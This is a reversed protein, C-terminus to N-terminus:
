ESASMESRTMRSRSFASTSSTSTSSSPWYSRMMPKRRRVEGAMASRTRWYAPSPDSNAAWPTSAVIREVM